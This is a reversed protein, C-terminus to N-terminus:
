STELVFVSSASATDDYPNTTLETAEDGDLDPLTLGALATEFQSLSRAAGDVSFLDNTSDYRLRLYRTAGGIEVVDIADANLDISIVDFETAGPLDAAAQVRYHLLDAVEGYELDEPDIGDGALDVQADITDVGPNAGGYTFTAIGSQNTTKTGSAGNAGSVLFEVSAGAYGKGFKDTVTITVTNNTSVLSSVKPQTLIAKDLRPLDDDWTVIATDDFEAAGDDNGDSDKDWFATVNDTVTGDDGGSPDAPGTYSLTAVGDAGTLVTQNIIQSGSRSVRFVVKQGSLLVPNGSGDVLRAKVQVPTGYKGFVDAVVLATPALGWNVQTTAKTRVTDDDFTENTEGVWAVVLDTELVNAHTFTVTAVGSANTKPDSSDIRCDTSTGADGNNLKADADLVCNGSSDISGVFVDVLVGSANTGDAKKVTITLTVTDTTPASSTSPSIGVLFPRAKGAELERALFLAMQWRFVNTLPSFTTPTTGKSIGLQVLQNIAVQTEAPFGGIDGFGQASGSPLGGIKAYLRTLFLAMQWRPVVDNPSFIGPATGKTIGLQALQNIATQTAADFAGIDTFGQSAGSPLVLGLDVATRTLFLAMQWRPVDGAPSFATSSTGQAIGYYAVCNIAEVSEGSLGSLDKFGSQPISTPCAETAAAAPVAPLVTLVLVAALVAARARVFRSGSRAFM